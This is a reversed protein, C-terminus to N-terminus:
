KYSYECDGIYEIYLRIESSKNGAPTTFQYKHASYDNRWGPHKDEGVENYYYPSQM